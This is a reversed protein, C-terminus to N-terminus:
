ISDLRVMKKPTDAIYCNDKEWTTKKNKRKITQSATINGFDDFFNLFNEWRPDYDHCVRQNEGIIGKRCGRLISCWSQYLPSVGSKLIGNVTHGHIYERERGLEGVIEKQACGCSKTNGSTLSHPIVIVQAGCECLCVLRNKNKKTRQEDLDVGTVLLRGYKKHLYASADFLGLGIKSRIEMSWCGCSPTLGNKSRQHLDDLRRICFQGCECHALWKAKGTAEIKHLLRLRGIIDGVNGTPRAAM